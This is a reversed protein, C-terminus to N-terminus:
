IGRGVQSVYIKHEQLDIRFLEPNSLLIPVKIRMSELEPFSFQESIKRKGDMRDMSVGTENQVCNYIKEVNDQNAHSGNFRSM